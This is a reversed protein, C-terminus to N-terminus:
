LNDNRENYYFLQRLDAELQESTLEYGSRCLSLYSNQLAELLKERYVLWKGCALEIREQHSSFPLFNLGLHSLAISYHDPDEIALRVREIGSVQKILTPELESSTRVICSLRPFFAVNNMFDQISTYDPLFAHLIFANDECLPMLCYKYFEKNYQKATLHNTQCSNMLIKLDNAKREYLPGFRGIEVTDSCAEILFTFRDEQTFTSLAKEDSIRVLMKQFPTRDLLERVWAESSYEEQSIVASQLDDISLDMEAFISLAAVVQMTLPTKSNVGNLVAAGGPIENMVARIGIEESLPNYHLDIDMAPLHRILQKLCKRLEQKNSILMQM